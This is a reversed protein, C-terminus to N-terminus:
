FTVLNNRSCFYFAFGLETAAAVDVNHVGSGIRVVVKLAKFKLLDDKSLSISHYLLAAVAENLVKEHIEATSQADCFAVTAVDKLLPMEIACDRGDLLAVLPRAHSSSSNSKSMAFFNFFPRLHPAQGSAPLSNGFDPLLFPHTHPVTGPSTTAAIPFPNQQFDDGNFGDVPQSIKQFIGSQEFINESQGNVVFDDGTFEGNQHIGNSLIGNSPLISRLSNRRRGVSYRNQQQHLLIKTRKATMRQLRSAASASRHEKPPLQMFSHPELQPDAVPIDGERKEGHQFHASCIRLQSVVTEETRGIAGLWRQRLQIPRKPIRYFHRNDEQGRYRSRFKCNPFGCTTPM